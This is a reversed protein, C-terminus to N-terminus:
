SEVVILDSVGTKQCRESAPWSDLHSRISLTVTAEDKEIFGAIALLGLAHNEIHPFKELGGEKRM